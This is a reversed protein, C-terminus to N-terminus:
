RVPNQGASLGSLIKDRNEHQRCFQEYEACGKVIMASPNSM